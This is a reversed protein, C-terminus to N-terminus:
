KKVVSSSPLPRQKLKQGVSLHSWVRELIEDRTLGSTTAGGQEAKPPPPLSPTPYGTM